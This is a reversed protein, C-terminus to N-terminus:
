PIKHISEFGSRCNQRTAGFAPDYLERNGSGAELLDTDSAHRFNYINEVPRKRNQRTAGFDPGCFGLDCNLHASPACREAPCEHHM